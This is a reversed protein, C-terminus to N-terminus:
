GCLVCPVCLSNLILFELNLSKRQTGQTRQPYGTKVQATVKNKYLNNGSVSTM